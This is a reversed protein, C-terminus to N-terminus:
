NRVHSMRDVQDMKESLEQYSKLLQAATKADLKLVAFYEELAGAKDRQLFKTVGLFSRAKLNNPDIELAREFAEAANPYRALEHYARGFDIYVDEDKPRRKVAERYSELSEIVKGRHFDSNALFHYAVGTPRLEIVRQFSASAKEYDKKDYYMRGLQEHPCDDTPSLQISRKLTAEADELRDTARYVMGIGCLACSDENIAAARKFASEAAVYNELKFHVVGLEVFARAFTPDIQVAKEYTSVAAEVNGSRVLKQAQFYYYASRPSPVARAIIVALVFFVGWGIIQRPRM